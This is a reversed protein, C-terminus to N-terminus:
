CAPLWTLQCILRPLIHELAQPNQLLHLQCQLPQESQLPQSHIFLTLAHPGAEQTGAPLSSARTSSTELMLTSTLSRKTSIFGRRLQPDSYLELIESQQPSWALEATDNTKM